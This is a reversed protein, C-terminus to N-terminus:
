FGGSVVSDLVNSAAFLVLLAMGIMLLFLSIIRFTDIITLLKKVEPINKPHVSYELSQSEMMKNQSILSAKIGFFYGAAHLIILLAFIVWSSVLVEPYKFNVNTYGTIFSISIAFIGTSVVLLIHDLGKENTRIASDLRQFDYRDADYLLKHWEDNNM